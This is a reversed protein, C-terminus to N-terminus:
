RAEASRAQRASRRFDFPTQGTWRKFARHFSSTDAYGLREAIADISEDCISLEDRARRCRAEELLGTLSHGEDTLRRRLSRPSLGLERSVSDFDVEALSPLAAIHHRVREVFSSAGTAERYLGEAVDRLAAAVVADAHPQRREALNRPFVLSYTPQDFLVPCGFVQAYRDAYSPASHALRLEQPVARPRRAQQRGVKLAFVLIWEAIFRAAPEGVPPPSFGFVADTEHEEFHWDIGHIFLPAYREFVRFRELVTECTLMLHGIVHLMTDPAEQAMVLAFGPDGVHACLREVAVEIQRPGIGSASMSPGSLLSDLDDFFPHPDIGREHLEATM